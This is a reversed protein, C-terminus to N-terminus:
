SKFDDPMTGRFRQMRELLEEPTMSPDRTYPKPEIFKLIVEVEDGEKLGLSEVVSDELRVTLSDGWKRVQM